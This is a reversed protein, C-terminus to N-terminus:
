KKFVMQYFTENMIYTIEVNSAKEPLFELPPRAAFLSNAKIIEKGKETNRMRPSLGEDIVLVMGESRAIRLMEKLAGHIDSFTNIGGTHLVIDFFNSQYPINFVSGHTLSADIGLESMKRKAMGLMRTSLDMGHINFRGMQGKFRNHLAVFNAATGISVDIIRTPGEIPVFMALQEREKMMNIGLWDDYQKVSEDYSEAMEDYKKIWKADKASIPPYVLSPIEGHIPWTHGKECVIQGEEVSENSASERSFQLKKGCQPCKLAALHPEKM